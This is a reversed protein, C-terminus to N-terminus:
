SEALWDDVAQFFLQPADVHLWHGAGPIQKIVAAPFLRYVAGRKLYASQEGVLFLVAPPYGIHSSFDPFAVIYQANQQFYDLNVRWRYQGDAFLLNQLLFQRESLGTIAQALWDEAQKRNNLENLPLSQLANVTNDMNYDYSVPSIDVVILKGLRQPQQLACYMAIKGGMSHGLLDVKEQQLKDLFGLVDAAMAPYDMQPHHPSAGHNRIDLVYVRRKQALQKAIARWNRASAFFGHLILLPTGDHQEGFCEFALNVPQM